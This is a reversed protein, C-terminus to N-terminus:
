ACGARRELHYQGLLAIGYTTAHSVVSPHVNFHEAAHRVSDFTEGTERCILHGKRIAGPRYAGDNEYKFHLGSKNNPTYNRLSYYMAPISRGDAKAAAIADPYIVGTEVCVVRRSAPKEYRVWSHRAEYSETDDAAIHFGGETVPRGTRASASAMTPDVGLYRAAQALTPFHMGTEVIRCPRPVGKM